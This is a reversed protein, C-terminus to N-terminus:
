SRATKLCKHHSRVARQLLQFPIFPPVGLKLVAFFVRSPSFARPDFKTFPTQPSGSLAERTHTCRQERVDEFVTSASTNCRSPFLPMVPLEMKAHFTPDVHHEPNSNQCAQDNYRQEEVETEPGGLRNLSVDGKSQLAPWVM